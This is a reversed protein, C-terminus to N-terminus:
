WHLKSLKEFDVMKSNEEAESIKKQLEELEKKINEFEKVKEELLFDKNKLLRKQLIIRYIYSRYNLFEDDCYLSVGGEENVMVLRVKYGLSKADKRLQTAREKIIEKHDYDGTFYLGQEIAQKETM